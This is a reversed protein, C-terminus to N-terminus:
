VIVACLSLLCCAILSSSLSGPLAALPCASGGSGCASWLAAALPVFAGAAQKLLSHSRSHASDV